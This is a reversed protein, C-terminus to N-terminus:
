VMRELDGAVELGAYRGTGEFLTDPQAGHLRSLRHGNLIQSSVHHTPHFGPGLVEVSVFTPRM